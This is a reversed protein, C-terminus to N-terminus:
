EFGIDRDVMKKLGRIAANVSDDEVAQQRAKEQEYWAEVDIEPIERHKIAVRKDHGVMINRVDTCNWPTGNRKRTGIQNLSKAIKYYSWGEERKTKMFALKEQERLHVRLRSNKSHHRMWGYPAYRGNVFGQELRHDKGEKTLESTRQRQWQAFTMVINLFMEGNATATDIQQAISVLTVGRKFYDEVLQQWDKLSRSLRDLHTVIIGDANGAQCENLAEMLGPSALDKGSLQDTKIGVLEYDMLECYKRSSSAQADLSNQMTTSVRCYAILKM